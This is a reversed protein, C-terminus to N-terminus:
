VILEGARKLGTSPLIERGNTETSSQTGPWCIFNKGVFAKLFVPVAGLVSAYVKWKRWAAIVAIEAINVSSKGKGM